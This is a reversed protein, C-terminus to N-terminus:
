AAPKAGKRDVQGSLKSAVGQLQGILENLKGLTEQPEPEAGFHQPLGAAVARLMGAVNEAQRLLLLPRYEVMIWNLLASLDVGRAAAVNVYDEYVDAAMRFSVQKMEQTKNRGSKAM